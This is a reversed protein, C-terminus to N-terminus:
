DGKKGPVCNPVKKGNKTKKGVMHYGKWCPDDKASMKKAEVIDLYERFGKHEKLGMKEAEKELDAKRRILESKLEPDKDTDPDMQIDQLAKRKADLDEKDKLASEKVISVFRKMDNAGEVSKTAAGDFAQLIRKM